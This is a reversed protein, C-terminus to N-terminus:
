EGPLMSRRRGRIHKEIQDKGLGMEKFLFSTGAAYLVSTMMLMVRGDPTLKSSPDAHSLRQDRIEKTKEAWEKARQKTISEFASIADGVFEALEDTSMSARSRNKKRSLMGEVATYMRSLKDENYAEDNYWNSTLLKAALGYEETIELWKAVGNMGGIDEFNLTPPTSKEKRETTNRRMPMHAKLPSLDGKEYEVWLNTVASTENCCISLLDQITVIVSLAENLPMKSGGARGLILTCHDEISYRRISGNNGWNEKPFFRITVEIDKGEFCVRTTEDSREKKTVTVGKWRGEPYTFEFLNPRVWKPLNTIEATTREFAIEEDEDFKVGDIVYNVVCTQHSWDEGDRGAGPDQTNRNNKGIGFRLHTSTPFCDVLTVFDTGGRIQGIVRHLGDDMETILSGFTELRAENIENIRLTGWLKREDNQSLWFLGHESLLEKDTM